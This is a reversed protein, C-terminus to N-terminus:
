NTAQRSDLKIDNTETDYIVCGKGDPTVKVSLSSGEAAPPTNTGIAEVAEGYHAGWTWGTNTRDGDRDTHTDAKFFKWAGDFFRLYTVGIRVERFHDPNSSFMTTSHHKPKRNSRDFELDKYDAHPSDILRDLYFFDGVPTNLYCPALCGINSSTVGGNGPKKPSHPMRNDFAAMTMFERTDTYEGGGGAGAAELEPDHIEWPACKGPIDQSQEELDDSASGTIAVVIVGAAVAMLVLVATVILTQLTIGREDHSPSFFTKQSALQHRSITHYRHM